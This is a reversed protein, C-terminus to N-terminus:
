WKEIEQEILNKWAWYLTDRRDEPAITMLFQQAIDRLKGIDDMTGMPHGDDDSLIAAEDEVVAPSRTKTASRTKKAAEAKKLAEKGAGEPGHVLMLEHQEEPPLSAVAAAAHTAIKNNKYADQLPPVGKKKVKEAMDVVSGSIGMAAAAKDRARGKSPAPLNLRAKSSPTEGPKLRSAESRQKAQLDHIGKMEVAIRAKDNVTLHRRHINQSAVFALKEEDAGRFTEFIPKVRIMTCAALRNRGDLIKGDQDVYIPTKQGNARIDSALEAIEADTMMPFLDAFKHNEMRKEM